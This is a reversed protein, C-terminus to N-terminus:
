SNDTTIEGNMAKPISFSIDDLYKYSGEYEITGFFAGELEYLEDLSKLATHEPSTDEAIIYSYKGARGAELIVSEQGEQPCFYAKENNIYFDRPDLAISQDTKNIFRFTVIKEQQTSTGWNIEETYFNVLEITVNVDDAVITNEFEIIGNSADSSNTKGSAGCACLSLCMVAALLLVIWKKM